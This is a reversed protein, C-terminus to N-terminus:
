KLIELRTYHEIETMASKPVIENNNRQNIRDIVKRLKNSFIVRSEATTARDKIQNLLKQALDFDKRDQESVNKLAIGKANFVAQDIRLELINLSSHYTYDDKQADVEAQKAAELMKATFPDTPDNMVPFQIALSIDMHYAAIKKRLEQHHSELKARDVSTNGLEQTSETDEQIEQVTKEINEIEPTSLDEDIFLMRATIPVIPAFFLVLAQTHASNWEISETENPYYSLDNALKNGLNGLIGNEGFIISPDSILM